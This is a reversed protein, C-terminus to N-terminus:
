RANGEISRRRDDAADRTDAGWELAMGALVTLAALALILILIPDM